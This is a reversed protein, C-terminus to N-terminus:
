ALALVELLQELTAVGRGADTSPSAAGRELRSCAAGFARGRPRASARRPAGVARWRAPSGSRAGCRWTTPSRAARRLLRGGRGRGPRGSARRRAARGGREPVRGQDHLPLGMRKELVAFSRWAAPTSASATRRPLALGSRSVLAQIEVLLPPQRALTALVASARRAPRGDALFAASPNPVERSARGGWRSCRWKTTSGFPEKVARLVRLAHAGDGRLLARNDVLIRSCARALLTGEKTVHRHTLLRRRESESRPVLLAGVRAGTGRQRARLRARPHAADPDLRRRRRRSADRRDARWARRRRRPVVLVGAEAMGLRDARLRVQEPSEEARSTSSPCGQRALAGRAQLALTSKGIGPDGGVLVVSGAVLGGGLVGTWSRSADLPPAGRRRHRRRAAAAERRPRAPAPPAPAREPLAEEVM